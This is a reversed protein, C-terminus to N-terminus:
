REYIYELAQIDNIKVNNNFVFGAREFSKISPINDNKIYAYIKNRHTTSIFKDCSKKLLRSALGKGRFSPAVTIGIM